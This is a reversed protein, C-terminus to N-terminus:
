AVRTKTPSALHGDVEPEGDQDPHAKALPPRPEAVPAVQVIISSGVEFPDFGARSLARRADYLDTRVHLTSERRTNHALEVTGPATERVLFIGSLGAGRLVGLVASAM